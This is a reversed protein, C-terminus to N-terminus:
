DEDSVWDDKPNLPTEAIQFLAEEKLVGCVDMYFKMLCEPLVVKEIYQM